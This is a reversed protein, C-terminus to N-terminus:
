QKEKPKGPVIPTDDANGWEAWSAYYNKVDKAGMLELAFAMVSARGGSQCHAAAPKAVDIGAGSFLKRIEDAPKFRQTPKDILDSWELHKAGPIAGGRKNTQQETGCFEGESRADIIQLGSSKDSLAKMLGDKTALRDAIPKATFVAAQITASDGMDVPLKATTWGRWGGNLIRADDVGWYRLIWWMRAADKASVDDYVVVRAGQAIGLEGIRRSWGAADSGQGFAKAWAAADIWRAGPVRSESYKKRDRADLVVFPKAPDAKALDAPEVLLEPRAYPTPDAAFWVASPAFTSVFIFLLTRAQSPM